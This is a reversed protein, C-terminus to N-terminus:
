STGDGRRWFSEEADALLRDHERAADVGADVGKANAAIGIIGLAPHERPDILQRELAELGLRVVESKTADLRATLRALREQEDSRLYVQVPESVRPPRPRRKDHYSMM